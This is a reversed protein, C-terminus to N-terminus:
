CFVACFLLHIKLDTMVATSLSGLIKRPLTGHLLKIFVSPVQTHSASKVAIWFFDKQSILLVNEHVYNLSAELKAWHGSATSCCFIGMHSLSCKGRFCLFFRRYFQQVAFLTM